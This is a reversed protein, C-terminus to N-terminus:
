IAKMLLQSAIVDTQAEHPLFPGRTSTSHGIGDPVIFTITGTAQFFKSEDLTQGGDPIAYWVLNPEDGFILPCPEKVNLVNALQKRASSFGDSKANVLFNITITKSNVYTKIFDSGISPKANMANTWGSGINRTIGTFGDLIESLETGNFKISFAM